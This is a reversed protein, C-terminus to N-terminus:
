GFRRLIVKTTEGISIRLL